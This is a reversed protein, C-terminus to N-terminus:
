RSENGRWDCMSDRFSVDMAREPLPTPLGCVRLLTVGNWKEAIAPDSCHFYIVGRLHDIELQGDIVTRTATEKSVDNELSFNM